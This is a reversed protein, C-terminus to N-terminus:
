LSTNKIHWMYHQYNPNHSLSRKFKILETFICIISKLNSHVHESNSFKFTNSKGHRPVAIWCSNKIFNENRSEWDLRRIMKSRQSSYQFKEKIIQAFNVFSIGKLVFAFAFLDTNITPPLTRFAQKRTKYTIEKV